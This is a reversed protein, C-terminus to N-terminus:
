ATETTEPTKAPKRRRRRMAGFLGLAALLGSSGPVTSPNADFTYTLTLQGYELNLYSEEAIVDNVWFYANNDTTLVFTGTGIFFGLYVSPASKTYAANLSLTGAMADGTSGTITGSQASPAFSSGTSMGTSTNMIYYFSSYGVDISSTSSNAVGGFSMEFEMTIDVQTLTGLSTDFFPIEGTTFFDEIPEVPGNSVTKVADFSHTGWDHTYVLQDANVAGAFMGCLCTPIVSYSLLRIHPM